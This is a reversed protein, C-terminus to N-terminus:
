WRLYQWTYQWHKMRELEEDVQSPMKKYLIIGQRFTSGRNISDQMNFETM